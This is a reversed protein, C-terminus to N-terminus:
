SHNVDLDLGGVTAVASVPTTPTATAKNLRALLSSSDAPNRSTVAAGVSTHPLYTTRHMTGVAVAGGLAIIGAKLGFRAVVDKATAVLRHRGSAYTTSM